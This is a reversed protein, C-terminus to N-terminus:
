AASRSEETSQIPRQEADGVTPCLRRVVSLVRDRSTDHRIDELQEIMTRVRRAEAEDPPSAWAQVGAAPTPRLEESAHALEEHIKEGPRIGTFVIPMVGAGGRDTIDRGREALLPTHGHLRVLREALEVIRLPEGMDLVFVDAGAAEELSLTGAQIVLSAAEPITMFFRTMEPHTVTVPGGEALQKEWVPIVSGASGLVNGFRVTSFRTPSSAGRRAMLGGRKAPQNLSRVYLEAFRKTAGMVSSPNVAKDTSIMVFREAHCARSADAISATGFVNNNVAHAPHDEMIPVHKHAAAHFVTQPRIDLLWAMTADADVVDHLMARRKVGPFRDRIERDIEFLANESREILILESPNLTAVRRALESGISGGAGTILVRKGTLAAEARARAADDFPRPERGILLSPDISGGTAGRRKARRRWSAGTGSLMHEIRDLTARDAAVVLEEAAPSSVRVSNESANTM